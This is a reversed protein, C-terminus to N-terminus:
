VLLSLNGILSCIKLLQLKSTGSLYQSFNPPKRGFTVEFLSIGMSLNVLTNYSWETWMLWKGWTSPKSHVFARPYQEVVRNLVKTQGDSQPHYTSSMQLMNNSLRFLEQWFKSIFLPDKNSVLSQPMGHHKGVIEMFILAAVHAIYNTPLMGLHIRKSFRDVVVLITTNGQYVPFGVIFDLSLDKWPHFPVLLPCLLSAPKRTEYKTHQCDSCSAIFLRVNERISSWTFNEGLRALTKKICMHGGM